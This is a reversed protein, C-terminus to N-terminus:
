LLRLIKAQDTQACVNFKYSYVNGGIYFVIVVESLLRLYVNWACNVVSLNFPNKALFIDFSGTCSIELLTTHAVPM